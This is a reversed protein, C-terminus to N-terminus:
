DVDSHTVASATEIKTSTNVSELQVEKETDDHEVKVVKHQEKQAQLSKCTEYLSFLNQIGHVEKHKAITIVPEWNRSVELFSM